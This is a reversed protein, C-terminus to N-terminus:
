TEQFPQELLRPSLQEEDDVAQLGMFRLLHLCPDGPMMIPDLQEVQWSARRLQVGILVQVVVQLPGNARCAQRLGPILEARPDFPEHAPQAVDRLMDAAVKLVRTYLVGGSNLT